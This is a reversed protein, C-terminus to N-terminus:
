TWEVVLIFLVLETHLPYCTQMQYKTLSVQDQLIILTLANSLLINKDIVIIEQTMISLKRYNEIIKSLKKKPKNRLKKFLISLTKKLHIKKLDM